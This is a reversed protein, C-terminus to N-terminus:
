PILMGDAVLVGYSDAMGRRVQDIHQAPGLDIRKTTKSEQGLLYFTKTSNSVCRMM